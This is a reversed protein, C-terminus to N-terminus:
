LRSLSSAEMGDGGDECKVSSLNGAEEETKEVRVWEVERVKRINGSEM